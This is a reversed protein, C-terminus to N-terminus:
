CGLWPVGCLAVPSCYSPWLAITLLLLVSMFCLCFWCPLRRAHLKRVMKGFAITFCFPFSLAVPGSLCVCWPTKRSFCRGQSLGDTHTRAHARAISVFHNRQKPDHKSSGLRLNWCQLMAGNCQWHGVQGVLVAPLCPWGARGALWCPWGARGALVALLRSALPWGRAMGVNIMGVMGHRDVPAGHPAPHAENVKIIMRSFTIIM